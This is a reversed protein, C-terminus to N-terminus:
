LTNGKVVNAPRAYADFSPQDATSGYAASVELVFTRGQQSISKKAINGRNTIATIRNYSQAWTNASSPQPYPMHILGIEFGPM